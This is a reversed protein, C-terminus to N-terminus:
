RYRNAMEPKGWTEYFDALRKRAEITLPHQEGQSSKMENYSELLLPEADAYRKQTYLCEGLAGKTRETSRIEASRSKCGEGEALLTPRANSLDRL